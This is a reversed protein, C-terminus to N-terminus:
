KAWKLCRDPVIITLGTQMFKIQYEIQGHWCQEVRVVIAADEHMLTYRLHDDIRKYRTPYPRDRYQTWETCAGKTLTSSGRVIDGVKFRTKIM